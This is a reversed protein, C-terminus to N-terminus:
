PSPVPDVVLETPSTREAEVVPFYRSVSVQLVVVNSAAALRAVSADLPLRDDHLHLAKVKNHFTAPVDAAATFDGFLEVTYTFRERSAPMELEARITLHSDDAIGLEERAFPLLWSKELPMPYATNAISFHSLQERVLEAEKQRLEARFRLDITDAFSEAPIRELHEELARFTWSVAAGRGTANPGTAEIEFNVPHFPNAAADPSSNGIRIRLENGQAAAPTFELFGIRADLQVALREACDAEISRLQPATLTDRYRPEALECTVQVRLKELALSPAAWFAASIVALATVLRVASTM